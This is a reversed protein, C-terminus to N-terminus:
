AIRNARSSMLPAGKLPSSVATSNLRLNELVYNRKQKVTRKQSQASSAIKSQGTPPTHSPTTGFIDYTWQMDSTQVVLKAKHTKGYLTPRYGLKILTGESNYPQLEGTPPYVSFEPDSGAVFYAEYPLIHRTQSTLRFGVLAEKNLGAAEIRIVDDVEPETALVRIPFRWVGGTVASVVLQARHSFPKFPAFVFNFLLSIVGSVQNRAKRLLNVGLSRELAAQGEADEFVVEYRFEEPVNIYDMSYDSDNPLVHIPTLARLYSAYSTSASSPAVGTLTVEIKEEVRGRAKCEICPALSDRIPCSEPIGKIPFIWTLDNMLCTGTVGTFDDSQSGDHRHMIVTVTAEHMQMTDPAFSIPIALEEMPALRISNPAKLLLCFTSEKPTKTEERLTSFLSGTRSLTREKLMVDVIVDQDTPNRFPIIHSSNGGLESYINIPENAGPMLGTGSALFVWDGLQESNFIIETSHNAHGINSPTFKLPIEVVSQASLLLTNSQDLELRFNRPNSIYPTLVLAEETPNQLRVMQYTSKGIECQMIPVHSPSPATAKLALDYWFEGLSPCQFIVSGSMDGISTPSFKLRYVAQQRPHVTISPDGYVGMGEHLVEIVVKERTPNSVGIEVSVASHAACTVELTKEPPPASAQVELSYWIRYPQSHHESKTGGSSSDRTSSNGNPAPPEDEDSDSDQPRSSIADAEVEHTAVFSIVGKFEGRRWPSVTIVHEATQSPLVTVTSAGSVIDLDTMVKLTLKKSTMNPVQLTRTITKRAECEILVNDLALPREGTGRLNYVQETTDNTNILTLKGHTPGEYFPRFMLPYHTTTLAKAVLVPPGYFGEGELIATLQWDQKSHNVVPVDQTVSQHTPSNFELELSSGEPSVTCEVQYVRIDHASRLVVQCPYHGAGNPKFTVPIMVTNNSTRKRSLDMSNDAGTPISVYSPTKFYKSSTEVNFRTLALDLSKKISPDAAHLFMDGGLGMSAVRATVTSSSLTGTLQRRQFERDSMRQQAAIALAHERATNTLPLSLEETFVEDCDSKWYVVRDNGGFTGRGRQAAAASSIRITHPSDINPLLSPLPLLATAEISYLFEGIKDNIFLVSCQRHGTSFPLFHVEITSLSKGDLHVSPVPCWFASLQPAQALKPSGPKDTDIRPMEKRPSQSKNSQGHDTRAVVPKKAPKAPKNRPTTSSSGSGPFASQAEVLVVRFEGGSTFPNTVDFTVKQLEYCPSECKITAVPTINNICTELNFVLTNGCPSGVRRGVLVLTASCPRLFRSKFEVPLQLQGKSPVQVSDGMTATFDCADRGAVIVQYTLPKVSPNQLQVHKVVTTHLPGQFDITARPLYQPLRRYLHLCLLMITIPNPQTIDTSQIEYDMGIHRLAEVVKLVNHLCQEATSPHLYMSHLHTSVLFPVYAALLAALVLGDMFDFEFNVIWRCSPSAGDLSGPWARQRQADYHHNIWALLIREGVSYVNSAQPNPNVAPPPLEKFPSQVKKFLQPTVRSLVLVKIIQALVDTWARRSVSNFKSLEKRAAAMERDVIEEDLPADTDRMGRQIRRWRKYDEPSLLNEPTVHALLAGQTRLFTLLTAYMWHIQRVRDHPDTPLASALPIGPVQRGCLHTVLDFVSRMEKRNNSDWNTTRTAATNGSPAESMDQLAASLSHPISIPFPGGAWGQISFWRQIALVVTSIFQKEKSEAAPEDLTYTTRDESVESGEKAAGKDDPPQPTSQFTSASESNSSEQYTSTSIGFSTSTASTSAITAPRNPTVCPKFVPEGVPQETGKDKEQVNAQQANACVVHYDTQHQSLFHFCTLLCNDATASIPLDYRDKGDTFTIMASFSVPSPSQFTIRCPIVCPDQHEGSDVCCPKITQGDPFCVDLVNQLSGDEMEVAPAECSVTCTKRYGKAVICFNATVPTELPVPTMTLVAPEFTLSPAHLEGRLEIIRYPHDRDDNLIVPVHAIFLGPRPPTFLVGLQFTEGSELSISPITSKKRASSPTFPSGTRHLFKFTGDELHPGAAQTHLTWSLPSDSNNVFMCGQARGAGSEIGLDFYGSPLSFELRTHSVQLPPRLATALVRRSPTAIGMISPAPTDLEPITWNSRSPTPTPPFTSPPPSPAMINNISVPIIFDYAAVESPSFELACSISQQGELALCYIGDGRYIPEEDEDADLFKLTFDMYRSMDLVLEARTRTMNRMTFPATALAGCYVGGLRFTEVDIDVCPPEVTGGVRLSIMKGGRVNVQIHTDFKHITDPSFHVVLETSGGVPVVGEKPVIVMGRIPHTDVVEFYAHNQGTNKISVSKTTTLNLAVPGFLLRREVFACHASGVKALCQLRKQTGNNVHLQFITEDPASYTPMYTVQCVLNTFADVTGQSPRISFATGNGDPVPAWSFEAPYNRKNILSISGQLGSESLMCPCPKVTLSEASLELDVTVVQALVVIHQHHRGNITYNVSREFNGKSNSEFMLALKALSHPPVVQSLPSTQRLERCDIRANIHIYSDLNNVIMLDKGSISRLCVQGFDVVSPGIDLQKLQHPTLTRSCDAKETDTMPVANLGESIPQTLSLTNKLSLTKSSLLKVEDKVPPPDQEPSRVDRLSLKPPRLGKGTKIGLDQDNNLEKFERKKEYAIRMKRMDDIYDLYFQKHQEKEREESETYAYDPDVYTYRATKTFLTRVTEDRKAPRISTARDNPHAVLMPDSKPRKIEKVSQIGVGQLQISTKHIPVMRTATPDGGLSFNDAISGLVDLQLIPKFRGMQNPQFVLLVDASKGANVDGNLPKAHFHAVRNLAFSLPLSACENNITCLTEIQEDIPCEGFNFVPSPSISLLVPLATGIVGVEVRRGGSTQVASTEAVGTVSGVIEIHMFLVFDRRPPPQDSTKWGKSSRTFRPSFCFHIARKEGPQLTGQSPLATVLTTLDNTTGVEDPNIQSELM